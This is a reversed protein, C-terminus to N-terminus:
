RGQRRELEPADAHFDAQRVADEVDDGPAAARSAVGEDLVGLDREDAERALRRGALLDHALAGVRELAQEELQAALRRVDHELVRVEVLHHRRRDDGHEVHRALVAARAAAGEHVALDVVLEQLLEGRPGPFQPDTIREVRLGLDARHDAAGLEFPDLVVQLDPLLLPGVEHAPALAEPRGLAVQDLWRHEVM